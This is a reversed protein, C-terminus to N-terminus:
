RGLIQKLAHNSSYLSLPTPILGAIQSGNTVNRRCKEGEWGPIRCNWGHLNNGLSVPTPLLKSMQLYRLARDAEKNWMPRGGGGGSKRPFHFCCCFCTWATCLSLILSQFVLLYLSKNTHVLTPCQSLTRRSKSPGQGAQAPIAEIDWGAGVLNRRSPRKLKVSNGQVKLFNHYRGHLKMGVCSIRSALAAATKCIYINDEGLSHWPAQWCGWTGRPQHSGPSRRLWHGPSASTWAPLYVPLWCPSDGQIPNWPRWPQPSHKATRTSSWLIDKSMQITHSGRRFTGVSGGFLTEQATASPSNGHTRNLLNATKFHPKSWSEGWVLQLRIGPATIFKVRLWPLFLM